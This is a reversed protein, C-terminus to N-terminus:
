ENVAELKPKGFTIYVGHKEYERLQKPPTNHKLLKAIVAVKDQQSEDDTAKDFDEPAIDPFVKQLLLKASNVQPPSLELQGEFLEYEKGCECQHTVPTGVVCAILRKTIMKASKM